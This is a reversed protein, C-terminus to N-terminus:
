RILMMKKTTSYSGAQFRYFYVGTPVKLGKEDLGDWSVTYSGAKKHEAVLSKIREGSVTYVEISVWGERPLEYSIRTMTGFPNPENQVLAFASPIDTPVKEIIGSYPPVDFIASDGPNLDVPDGPVPQWDAALDWTLSDLPIWAGSSDLVAENTFRTVVDQPAHFKSDLPIVTYRVLAASGDMTWAWQRNIRVPKPYTKSLRIIDRVRRNPLPQWFQWPVPIQNLKIIQTWYAQVGTVGVKPDVKLGFHRTECHKIPNIRDIWTVEVGGPQDPFTGPPFNAIRPPNGWSNEGTYWNWIDATDIEGFFDLELNDYPEDDNNHVDFNSLTGTIEPQQQASWYLTAENTFRTIITQPDGALAVTYRVLVASDNPNVEIDLLISDGPDLTVPDGRVPMWPAELDWNLSDLPVTIPLTAFERSIIVSGQDFTMSLTIIDTVVSETVQWFQWPVPIQKVKKIKTWYAQVGPPQVEPKIRLGFHKTQCYVIPNIRDFWTVELGGPLGPFTGPPFPNLRPPTGWGHYWGIVDEPTIEGFFDLELNDVTDQTNNHADFNSLTGWIQGQVQPVLTMSVALTAGILFKKM